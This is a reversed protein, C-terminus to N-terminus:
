LARKVHSLDYTRTRSDRGRLLCGNEPAKKRPLSPRSGRAGFPFSFSSFFLDRTTRALAFGSAKGLPGRLPTPLYRSDRGFRPYPRMKREKQRVRIETMHSLTFERMRANSLACDAVRRSAKSYYCGNEPAKKHPLSPRSGRAGFPFSFSSSFLDRTTRALAFGPASTDLRYCIKISM